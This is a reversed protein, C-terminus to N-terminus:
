AGEPAKEFLQRIEAVARRHRHRTVPLRHAFARAEDNGSIAVGDGIIVHDLVGFLHRDLGRVALFIGSVHNAGIGLGVKGEQLDLAAVSESIDVEGRLLSADAVPDDGDAIREAEAARYGGADDGRAPAIDASARIVIEQLDISRDVATVGTTGREIEGALHNAHVRRDEGGGAAAAHADAKGNGRADGPVDDRRQTVVALDGAAPETHLDLGHGVLDGLAHPDGAGFARKDGVDSFIGGGGLGADPGTVRNDAYVSGLHQLGLIEGAADGLDLGALRDLDGDDAVALRGVQRHLDAGHRRVDFHALRRDDLRRGCAQRREAQGKFLAVGALADGDGGHLGAAGGLFLPQSGAIRDQLEVAAIDCADLSDPALQVPGGLAALLLDKHEYAGAVTLTEDRHRNVLRLGLRYRRRPSAGQRRLGRPREDAEGTGRPLGGARNWKTKRNPLRCVM